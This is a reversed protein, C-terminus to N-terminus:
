AKRTLLKIQSVFDYKEQKKELELRRLLGYNSYIDELIKREVAYAGSRLFRELGESFVDIKEAIENRKLSYNNELYRYMLRTAEEGFIQKLARDIIES